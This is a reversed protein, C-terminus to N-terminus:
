GAGILVWDCGVYGACRVTLLDTVDVFTVILPFPM